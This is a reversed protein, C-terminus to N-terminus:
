IGVSGSWNGPLETSRISTLGAVVSYTGAGVVDSRIYMEIVRVDLTVIQGPLIVFHNDGSMGAISFAVRLSNSNHNNNITIFKSISPFSLQVPASANGPAVGSSLWPRGPVKYSGANGLGPVPYINSM